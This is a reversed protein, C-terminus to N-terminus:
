PCSKLLRQGKPCIFLIYLKEHSLPFLNVHVINGIGKIKRVKIQRDVNKVVNKRM